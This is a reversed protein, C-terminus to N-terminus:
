DDLAKRLNRVIWESRSDLARQGGLHPPQNRSGFEFSMGGQAMSEDPYIEAELFRTHAQISAPYHKGHAGSTAEANSRWEDRLKTGEDAIVAALRRTTRASTNGLDVAISTANSTVTIAM